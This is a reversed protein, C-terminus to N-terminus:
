SPNKMKYVVMSLRADLAGSMDPATEVSLKRIKAPRRGNEAQFLFKALQKANVKKLSLEYFYEDALEGSTGGSEPSVELASKDVGASAAASEFYAPWPQSDPSTDRGAPIRAKLADREATASQIKRIIEDKDAIENRISHVRWWTGLVLWGLLLLGGVAAAGQLYLRSQADLEDWKSRLSQFWPQEQIKDVLRQLFDNM